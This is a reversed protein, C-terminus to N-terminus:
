RYSDGVKPIRYKKIPIWKTKTSDLVSKILGYKRKQKFCKFCVTEFYPSKVHKETDYNFEKDITKISFSNPAEFDRIEHECTAIIKGIQLSMIQNRGYFWM